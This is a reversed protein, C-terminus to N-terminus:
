KTAVLSRAEPSNLWAYFAPDEDWATSGDITVGPDATIASPLAADNVQAVTQTATQDVTQFTPSLLAVAAVAALAAGGGMGWVWTRRRVSSRSPAALADPARVAAQMAQELRYHTNLSVHSVATGFVDRIQSDMNRNM